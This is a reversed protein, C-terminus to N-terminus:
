GESRELAPERPESHGHGALGELYAAMQGYVHSATFRERYLSFANKGLRQAFESDAGLRRLLAVLEVDSGNRYTVGCQHTRLLDELAGQLSSVVVLGASLYEIAKNPVGMAFGSTSRYPALGVTSRQMLTWIEAGGVWGPFSVTKLDRAAAQHRALYDGAGCIVFRVDGGSLELTRAARLVTEMECHRGVAGFYCAILAEERRPIGQEDWFADARDREAQSPATESYGLPFERDYTGATRGALGLGWQVCERTTGTLATAARCARRAQRYWSTLLRRAAWRGWRPVLDVMMDPWPDRVDLVVPVGHAQGYRTAADSLELTPLSCLVVDPRPEVAIERLFAAALAKHHAVRRLSINRRYAPAHLLRLSSREFLPLVGGEQMHHRKRFHDFTSTWWTVSHGRRDLERALMGTRLLRDHSDPRPLPEGITILWIRM